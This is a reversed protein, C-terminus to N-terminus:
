MVSLKSLEEKTVTPPMEGKELKEIVLRAVKEADLKSKFGENGSLGPISTQHIFLKDDKLINYGWTNNISSIIKFQYLKKDPYRHEEILLGSTSQNKPNQGNLNIVIAIAAFFIILQRNMLIRRKKNFDVMSEEM